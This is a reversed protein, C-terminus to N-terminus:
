NPVGKLVYSPGVITLGDPTLEIMYARPYLDRLFNKIEYFQPDEGTEKFRVAWHPWILREGMTYPSTHTFIRFARLARDLIKM